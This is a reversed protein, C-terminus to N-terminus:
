KEKTLYLSIDVAPASHTIVGTSVYDVGTEAIERINELTINGSAELLPATLNGARLNQCSEALKKMDETNMHDLLIMDAHNEIAEKAEEISRVEIEIKFAPPAKSRVKLLANKVSGCATIHNNKILIGSSLSFRHNQGGGIRVAYKEFIRLGPTTKRTDLLSADTHKIAEVFKRTITAIGSLRMLINLITREIKLINRVSGKFLLIIDGKKVSHSDSHKESVMLDPAAMEAFKKAVPIGALIFDEKAVVEAEGHLEEPITLESSIDGTGSDELKAIELLDTILKSNVDM